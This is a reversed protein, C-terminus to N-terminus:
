GGYFASLFRQWNEFTQWQDAMEETVPITGAYLEDFHKSLQAALEPNDIVLSNEYALNFSRYNVNTSGIVVWRDDVIMLKEHLLGQKRQEEVEIRLDIGMNMLDKTMFEVGKRNSERDDFPMIMQIDVGREQALRFAKIMSEDLFPLFPLVKVSHQASALLSGFVESLDQDNPVQNVYWADYSRQANMVTEDVAFDDRNIEDWSYKNWWSVFEDLMLSYLEPSRFEYMSDRQLDGPGAAISIYNLNMGGIAIYKGDILIFKRHDRYLLNVGSILRSASLPNFELLHVGSKRLFDLPILHFRAETMDFAGTGDVVFYVPIGSKAKEAIKQYLPELEESSSALFSSIIIYDQAKDVMETVREKWALGDYYVTPYSVKVKPLNFTAFKKELPTDQQLIAPDIMERTISCSSLVLVASAFLVLVSRRM